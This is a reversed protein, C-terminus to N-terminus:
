MADKMIFWHKHKSVLVLYKLVLYKICFLIMIYDHRRCLSTFRLGNYPGTRRDPNELMGIQVRQLTTFDM